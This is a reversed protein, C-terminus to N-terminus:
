QYVRFFATVPVEALGENLLIFNPLFKKTGFCGMEINNHYSFHTELSQCLIELFIEFIAIKTLIRM